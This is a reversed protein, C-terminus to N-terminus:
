PQWGEARNLGRRLRTMITEYQTETIGLAQQVEPGKMQEALGEVVLSVEDDDKFTKEIKGFQERVAAFREGDGYSASARPTDIDRSPELAVVVPQWGSLEEKAHNALSRMTELLHKAITVTKRWRRRDPELSRM